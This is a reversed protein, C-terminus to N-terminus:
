ALIGGPSDDVFPLHSSPWASNPQFDLGHIWVCCMVQGKLLLQLIWVTAPWIRLFAGAMCAHPGLNPGWFVSLFTTASMVRSQLHLCASGQSKSALWSPRSPSNSALSLSHRLFLISPSQPIVSSTRRQGRSTGACVSAGACM